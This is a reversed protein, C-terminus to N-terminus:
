PRRQKPNPELNEYTQEIVTMFRKKQSELSSTAKLSDPSSGKTEEESKTSETKNAPKTASILQQNWRKLLEIKSSQDATLPPIVAQRM